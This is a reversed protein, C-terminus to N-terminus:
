RYMSCALRPSNQLPAKYFREDQGKDFSPHLGKQLLVYHHKKTFSFSIDPM